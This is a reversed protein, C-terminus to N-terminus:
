INPINHMPVSLYLEGHTKDVSQLLLLILLFNALYNIESNADLGDGTSVQKTHDQFGVNLILARIPPLFGGAVGSNVTGEWACV